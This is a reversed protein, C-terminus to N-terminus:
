PRSASSVGARARRIAGSLANVAEEQGIVSKHIENEMSLLRKSENEDLQEAPIGTMKSIISCIDKVTVHKRAALTNNKWFESFKELEIKLDRVKDRVEAAREYDQRAVLDNKEETLREISKELQALQAPRQEEAIKKASGAEDLIDIAKDPLFREPIYRQSFKVIAPIVDEDYLVGHFEEFKPKLGDLINECDTVSPETIKVMQFRRVLASDKEFHRRYERFTTAGIIQIEGRSLAPKLINSADMTGEPSGAGIITHLEDIFLIIDGSERVEKMMRKMREEFEGRYKTGAIMAALDLCLIRKKLLGAPVLGGAIRQALGEAVATKGVGPEGVLVPNNKTRRSLIQIVRTIEDERGVVPDLSNERALATLDRSFEALFSKQKENQQRVNGAAVKEGRDRLPDNAASSVNEKQLRIVENRLVDLGIGADSFFRFSVSGEERMAAILIHETGIYENRLSRSEVSAVEILTRMRRSPPVESFDSRPPHPVISQELALQYNLVNVSLSQLVAYGLGEAGKLLSLVAHEPLLESSGTKRAEAQSMAVLIKQARPSLVKM